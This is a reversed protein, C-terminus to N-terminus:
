AGRSTRAVVLLRASLIDASSRHTLTEVIPSPRQGRGSASRLDGVHCPSRRDLTEAPDSVRASRPKQHQRHM